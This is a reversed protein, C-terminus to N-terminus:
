NYFLPAPQNVLAFTYCDAFNGLREGGGVSNARFIDAGDRVIWSDGVLQVETGDVATYTPTFKNATQAM